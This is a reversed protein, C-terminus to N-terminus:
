QNMLMSQIHTATTQSTPVARTLKLYGTMVPASQNGTSTEAITGPHGDRSIGAPWKGSIITTLTQEEWVDEELRMGLLEKSDQKNCKGFASVLVEREHHRVYM